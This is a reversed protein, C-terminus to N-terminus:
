GPDALTLQVAWCSAGHDRAARCHDLLLAFDCGADELADALVPLDSHDHTQHVHRALALVDPTRWSPDLSLLPTCADRLAGQVFQKAAKSFVAYNSDMPHARMSTIEVKVSCLWEGCEGLAARGQEAGGLIAPVYEQDIQSGSRSEISLSEVEAAPTVVYGFAAYEGRGGFQRLWRQQGEGREKLWHFIV